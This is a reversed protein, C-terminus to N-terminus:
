PCSRLIDQNTLRLILGEPPELKAAYFVIEDAALNAAHLVDEFWIAKVTENMERQAYLLGSL